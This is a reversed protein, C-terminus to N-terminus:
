IDSNTDSLFPFVIRILAKPLVRFSIGHVIAANGITALNLNIEFEFPCNVNCNILLSLEAM